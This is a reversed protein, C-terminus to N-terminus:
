DLRRKWVIGILMLVALLFMGGLYILLRGPGGTYLTMRFFHENSITFTCREKLNILGNEDVIVSYTETDRVYGFPASTEELEYSGAALNKFIVRGEPQGGRGSTYSVSEGTEKNRLTFVAGNLYKEPDNADVKLIELLNGSTNLAPNGNELSFEWESKEYGNIQEAFHGTYGDPAKIEKVLFIGQDVQTGTLDATYIGNQSTMTVLPEESFDHFNEITPDLPWIGFVAGPLLMSEDDADRKELRIKIKPLEGNWITWLLDVEPPDSFQIHIGGGDVHFLRQVSCPNHGPPPATETLYWVGDPISEFVALGEANTTTEAFTSGDNASTIRFRAGALATRNRGDAKLIRLRNKRNVIQLDLLRVGDSKGSTNNGVKGIIEPDGGRYRVSGLLRIKGDRGVSLYRVMNDIRYGAPASIERLSYTGQELKTFHAVGDDGSKEEWTKEPPDGSLDELNTGSLAAAAEEETIKSLRFLADSLPLGNEDTKRIRIENPENTATLSILHQSILQGNEDRETWDARVEKTWDAAYGEPAATEVIRFRGLNDATIQLPAETYYREFYPSGEESSYVLEMTHEEDTKYQAEEKSWEQVEFAADRILEGKEDEKKLVIRLYQPLPYNVIYLDEMGYWGSSKIAIESAAAESDSDPLASHDHLAGEPHLKLDEDVTFSWINLEGEANLDPMMDDPCEAERIQYSGAALDKMLTLGDEDTEEMAKWNEEDKKYEFLVSKLPNGAADVKHIRVSPPTKKEEPPPPPTEEPKKNKVTFQLGSEATLDSDETFLEANEDDSHMRGDEDVSFHWEEESILYGEPAAEEKITYTGASLKLLEILGNQDSIYSTGASQEDAGTRRVSFKAGALPKGSDADIKLIRLKNPSNYAFLSTETESGGITFRRTRRDLVYGPATSLEEYTYTGPLLGEITLSGDSGTTLTQDFASSGTGRIRFSIGELVGGDTTRKTLRVPLPDNKITITYPQDNGGSEFTVGPVRLSDEDPILTGDETIEVHLVTPVTGVTKSYGDPAEIEEITWFGAAPMDIRILGDSDSTLTEDYPDSGETQDSNCFIHFRAGALPVAPNGASVKRILLSKSTNIIVSSSTGGSISGDAGVTFSGESTGSRFLTGPAYNPQVDSERFSWKGETLDALTIIGNEDTFLTYSASGECVEGNASFRADSPATLDFSVGPLPGGNQNRKFIRYINDTKSNPVTIEGNGAVHGDEDVFINYISPDAFYGLAAASDADEQFHWVGPALRMLVIPSGKYFASKSEEGEKWVKFSIGDIEDGTKQDIKRITFRNPINEFDARLENEVLRVRGDESGEATTFELESRDRIYGPTVSLERIIFRGENDSTERLLPLLGTKPDVFAGSEMYCATLEMDGSEHFVSRRIQRTGSRIDRWGLFMWGDASELHPLSFEQRTTFTCSATGGSVPLTSSFDTGGDTGSITLEGGGRWHDGTHLTLTYEPEPTPTPPTTPTPTVTPKPTPTVTPKVTPTTTPKATPTPTPNAKWQAYLTVTTASDSTTGGTSLNKVSARNAYATGKGNAATNWGTFTYGTRTFANATLTVATDYTTSITSMTGSGGNPSFAIKYYNPNYYSYLNVTQNKKYNTIGLAAALKNITSFTTAANITKSASPSGIRWHGKLFHYGTHAPSSIGLESNSPNILGTDAIDKDTSGFAYKITKAPSGKSSTSWTGAYYKITLYYTATKPLRASAPCFPGTKPLEAIDSNPMYQATVYPSSKYGGKSRDYEYIGFVTGEPFGSFYERTDGTEADTKRIRIYPTKANEVNFEANDTFHGEEDTILGDERVTFRIPEMDATFGEPAATETFEWEGPILGEIEILGDGAPSERIPLAESSASSHYSAEGSVATYHPVGDPRHALSFQSGPLPMGSVDTKRIILHNPKNVFELVLDAEETCKAPVTVDRPTRDRIYGPTSTKEVVRYRGENEETHLLEAVNGTATDVFEEGNWGITIAPRATIYDNMSRDWECVAFTTGAPFGNLGKEVAADTLLKTIHLNVYPYNPVRVEPNTGNNEESLFFLGSTQEFTIRSDRSVTFSYQDAKTKYGPASVSVERFTYRGEPLASLKLIGNETSLSTEKNGLSATRKADDFLTVVAQGSPGSYTFAFVADLVDEEKVGTKRITLSNPTNTVTETQEEPVSDNTNSFTFEKQWGENVYGAPALEERVLFRGENWIYSGSREEAPANEFIRVKLPTTKVGNQVTEKTQYIGDKFILTTLPKGMEYAKKARNWEYVRFIGEGRIAQGSLADKKSLKIAAYPFHIENVAVVPKSEFSHPSSATITLDKSWGGQYGEPPRTETIRFLGGNDDTVHVQFTYLKKGAVWNMVGCRVYDGQKRSYQFVTLETGPLSLEKNSASTKQVCLLYPLPPDYATFEAECTKSSDRYTFTYGSSKNLSNDTVNFEKSWAAEYGNPATTEVVRFRGLNDATEFLEESTKKSETLDPVGASKWSKSAESWTDIRYVAGKLSVGYVKALKKVITVRGHDFEDNEFNVSATEGSKVKVTQTETNRKTGKAASVEKVTYTGPALKVKKANGSSANTTVSAVKKGSSNYIEFKAKRNYHGEPQAMKPHLYNKTILAYGKGPAKVYALYQYGTGTHIIVAYTGTPPDPLSSLKKIYSNAAKVEDESARYDWSSSGFLKAAAMHTTVLDAKAPKVKGGYGYYLAKVFKKDKSIAVAAGSYTGDVPASNSPMLCIGTHSGDKDKLLYAHTCWEDGYYAVATYGSKTVKNITGTKPLMTEEQVDFIENEVDFEEGEADLDEEEAEEELALLEEYINLYEEESVEVSPEAVFTLGEPQYRAFIPGAEAEAKAFFEEESLTEEGSPTASPDQLVVVDTEDPNESSESEPDASESAQDSGSSDVPSSDQGPAESIVPSSEDAPADLIEPLILDIEGDGAAEDPVDEPASGEESPTPSPNDASPEESSFEESSPEGSYDESGGESHDESYEPVPSEASYEEAPISASASSLGLIMILIFSLMKRITPRM